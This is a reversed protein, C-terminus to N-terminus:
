SELNKLLLINTMIIILYKKKIESIKTNYDAKKVLISIDTTKVANVKKVLKM